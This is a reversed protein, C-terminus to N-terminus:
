IDAPTARTEGHPISTLSPLGNRFVLIPVSLGLRRWRPWIVRQYCTWIRLANPKSAIDAKLIDYTTQPVPGHPLAVYDDGVIPRGYNNLHNVDAFFLVKLVTHFDV